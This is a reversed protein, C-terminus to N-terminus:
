VCWLCNLITCLIWLRWTKFTARVADPFLFNINSVYIKFNLKCVYIPWLSFGRLVWCDTVQEPHRGNSFNNLSRTLILLCIMIIFRLMETHLIDPCRWALLSTAWNDGLPSQVLKASKVLPTCTEPLPTCYKKKCRKQVFYGLNLSSQYWVFCKNLM